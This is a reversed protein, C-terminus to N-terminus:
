DHQRRLHALRADPRRGTTGDGSQADRRQQAQAALLLRRDRDSRARLSEQRMLLELPTRKM